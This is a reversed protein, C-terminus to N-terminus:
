RDAHIIDYNCLSMALSSSDLFRALPLPPGEEILCPPLEPLEDMRGPDPSARTDLPELNTSAPAKTRKDHGDGDGEREKKTGRSQKVFM